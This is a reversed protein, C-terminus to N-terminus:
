CRVNPQPLYLTYNADEMNLIDYLIEDRGSLGILIISPSEIILTDFFLYALIFWGADLPPPPPNNPNPSSLLYPIHTSLTSPPPSSTRADINTINANLYGEPQTLLEIQNLGDMDAPLDAESGGAVGQVIAHYLDAAASCGVLGLTYSGDHGDTLRNTPRDTDTM